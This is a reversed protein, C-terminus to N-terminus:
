LEQGNVDIHVHYYPNFYKSIKFGDKQMEVHIRHRKILNKINELTKAASANFYAFQLDGTNSLKSINWPM